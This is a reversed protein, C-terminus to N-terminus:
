AGSKLDDILKNKRALEAELDAIKAQLESVLHGSMLTSMHAPTNAGTKKSIRLRHTEVTRASIKLEHAIQESTLGRIVLEAIERERKTIPSKGQFGMSFYTYVTNISLGMKEAIARASFGQQRLRAVEQQRLEANEKGM